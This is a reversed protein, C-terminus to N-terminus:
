VSSHSILVTVPEVAVMFFLSRGFISRSRDSATFLKEDRIARRKRKIPNVQASM